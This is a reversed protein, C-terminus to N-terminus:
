TPAPHDTAAEILQTTPTAEELPATFPARSKVLGDVKSMFDEYIKLVADDSGELELQGQSLDIKLKVTMFGRTIQLPLNRIM